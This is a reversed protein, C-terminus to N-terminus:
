GGFVENLREEFFGNPWHTLFDGEDDLHLSTVQAGSEGVDIYLVSVMDKSIVGERIRKQIRLMLAESHTEIIWQNNKESKTSEIFLDALHAQLRPHLHIEPQEVCILKNTSVIAELIIPLVQGIGFGVDKPTIVTGNRLDELQISILPGTNVDGLDKVFIKYPIKFQELFKNISKITNSSSNYMELGLNNKGSGSNNKETYESYIKKPSSRLPGLYKYDNIMHAVDDVVRDTYLNAEGGVSDRITPISLIQSIGFPKSLYDSVDVWSKGDTKKIGARRVIALELSHPNNLSFNAGQSTARSRVLQYDVKIGSKNSCSFNYHMLLPKSDICGYSLELKRIDSNAFLMEYSYRHKFDEANIQSDYEITFQMTSKKDQKHILSEFTGLSISSGSTILKGDQDAAKLTQQLMMLAQIVSSKGSSNPGYILTIPALKLSQKHSFAKFNELEFNTIM